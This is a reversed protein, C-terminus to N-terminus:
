MAPNLGSSAPPAARVLLSTTTITPRRKTERQDHLGRHRPAAFPPDGRQQDQQAEHRRHGARAPEHLQSATRSDIRLVCAEERVWERHHKVDERDDRVREDTRELELRSKTTAIAGPVTDRSPREAEASQHRREGPKPHRVEIGPRFPVAVSHVDLAQEEPCRHDHRDDKPDVGSPATLELRVAFPHNASVGNPKAGPRLHEGM